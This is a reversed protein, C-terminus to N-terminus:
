PAPAAGVGGGAGGGEEGEWRHGRHGRLARGRLAALAESLRALRRRPLPPAPPPRPGPTASTTLSCRGRPPPLTLLPARRCVGAAGWCLPLGVGSEPCSAGGVHLQPISRPSPCPPLLWGRGLERCAVGSVPPPPCFGRGKGMALRSARGGWPRGAAAVNRSAALRRRRPAPPPPPAAAVALQAWGGLAAGDPCRVVSAGLGRPRWPRPLM